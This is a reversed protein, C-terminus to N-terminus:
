VQELPTKSGQISRSRWIMERLRETASLWHSYRFLVRTMGAQIEDDRAVSEFRALFQEDLDSEVPDVLTVGMSGRVLVARFGRVSHSFMSAGCLPDKTEVTSATGSAVFAEVEHSFAVPVRDNPVDGPIRGLDLGSGRAPCGALCM